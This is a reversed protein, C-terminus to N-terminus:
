LTQRMSEAASNNVADLDLIRRRGPQGQKSVLDRRVRQSGMSQLGGPEETWPIEWALISSQTAVEKELATFLPFGETRWVSCIFGKRRWSIKGVWPDFELRSHRRCQYASENGSPWRPLGWDEQHVSRLMMISHGEWGRTIKKAKFGAKGSILKAVGARRQNINVGYMKKWGEAKLKGTDNYKFHTEQLCCM